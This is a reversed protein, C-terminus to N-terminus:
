PLIVQEGLGSARALREDRTILTADLLRALAVFAADYATLHGRLSWIGALLSAHRYRRIPLASLQDSLQARSAPVRGERELRRLVHLVEVDLVEPAALLTDPAWLFQEISEPLFRAMLDIVVSADVVLIRRM